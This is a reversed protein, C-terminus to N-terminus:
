AGEKDLEVADTLQRAATEYGYWALLNCFQEHSGVDNAAPLQGLMKLIPTVGTGEADESLIDWIDETHATYFAVTDAYYVLNGVMGSQCGHQAVEALYKCPDEYESNIADAAVVKKLATDAHKTLAQAQYQRKNQARDRHMRKIDDKAGM